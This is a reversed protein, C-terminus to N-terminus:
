MIRCEVQAGEGKAAPTNDTLGFLDHSRRVIELMGAVGSGTEHKSLRHLALPLLRLVGIPLPHREEGASSLLTQVHAMNRNRALYLDMEDKAGPGLIFDVARPFDLLAWGFHFLSTNQGLASLFPVRHRRELLSLRGYGFDRQGKMIPLTQFLQQHVAETVGDDNGGLDLERLTTNVQLAALIELQTQADLNCDQMKLKALSRNTRLASTFEQLLHRDQQIFGCFWFELGCVQTGMSDDRLFANLHAFSRHTLAPEEDGGGFRLTLCSGRRHLDTTALCDILACFGWDDLGCRTVDVHQLSPGASRIGRVLSQVKEHSDLYNRSLNLKQIADNGDLFDEILSWYSIDEFEANSLDVVVIQPNLKIATLVLAWKELNERTRPPRPDLELGGALQVKNVASSNQRLFHCMIEVSEMPATDIDCGWLLLEKVQAGVPSNLFRFTKRLLKPEYQPNHIDPDIEYPLISDESSDPQLIKRIQDDLEAHYMRFSEDQEDDDDPNLIIGVEKSDVVLFSSNGSSEAAAGPQNDDEAPRSRLCDRVLSEDSCSGVIVDLVSQIDDRTLGHRRHSAASQLMAVAHAFSDSTTNNDEWSRARRRKPQRMAVAVVIIVFLELPLVVWDHIDLLLNGM